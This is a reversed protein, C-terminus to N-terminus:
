GRRRAAIEAINATPKLIRDLLADLAEFAARKEADFKHRDYIGRVGRIKHGIAREAHDENVGARSMLTRATRRLDHLTWGPMPERGEAKRLEAIKQDLLLKARQNNAFPQKGDSLSFVFGERRQGILKRAADTLPVVHDMKNKYRSAPITWVAGEIEDWRM